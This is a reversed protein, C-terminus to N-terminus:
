RLVPLTIESEITTGARLNWYSEAVPTEVGPLFIPASADPPYIAVLVPVAPLARFEIWASGDRIEVEHDAVPTGNWYLQVSVSRGSLSDPATVTLVGRALTFDLRHDGVTEFVARTIQFPDGHAPPAVPVRVDYAGPDLDIRYTGTTVTTTAYRTQDDEFLVTVAPVPGGGDTIMGSIHAKTDPPPDIIAPGSGSSCAALTVWLVLPAWLM